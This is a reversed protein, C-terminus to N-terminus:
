CLDSRLSNTALPAVNSKFAVQADLSLCLWRLVKPITKNWIGWLVVFRARKRSCATWSLRWSAKPRACTPITTLYLPAPHIFSIQHYYEALGQQSMVWFLCKLIKPNSMRYVYIGLRRRKAPPNGTTRRLSTQPVDPLWRASAMLLMLLSARPRLRRCPGALCPCSLPCIDLISLKISVTPCVHFPNPPRLNKVRDKSKKMAKRRSGPDKRGQSWTSSKWTTM